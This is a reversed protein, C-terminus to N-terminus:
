LREHLIRKITEQATSKGALQILKHYDEIEDGTFVITVIKERKGAAHDYDEPYAWFCRM